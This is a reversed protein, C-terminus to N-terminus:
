DTVATTALLCVTLVLIWGGLFSISNESPAYRDVWVAPREDQFQGDDDEEDDEGDFGAIVRLRRVANPGADRWRILGEGVISQSSSGSESINVELSSAAIHAQPGRIVEAEHAQIFLAPDSVAPNAPANTNTQSDFGYVSQIAKARHKRKRTSSSM